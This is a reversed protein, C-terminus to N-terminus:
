LANQHASFTSFAISRKSSSFWRLGVTAIIPSAKLGFMSSEAFRWSFVDCGFHHLAAVVGVDKDNLRVHRLVVHKLQRVVALSVVAGVDYDEEGGM